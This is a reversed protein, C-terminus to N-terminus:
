FYPEYKFEEVKQHPLVLFKLLLNVIRPSAKGDGYPNIARSMSKYKRKNTLLISTEKVIKDKDTGVLIATGAKIEEMRETVERLVLIPKGLSPAEEQIGGSDTLIIYSHKMLNCFCLYDPPEILHIGPIGSLLKYVPKKVNLNPHVSYIIEIDNFKKELEILACCINKIGKDFSERRHATVLILKKKSEVIKKLNDPLTYKRKLVMFLADIATNGTVWIKHPSIGERILNDKAIETPAFCFDAICDTLKRNMEEPFPSYKNNSRLGAEIHGVPIKEYFAALAGIFTTTTDGQVLIIYPKVKKFVDKLEQLLRSSIYYLDQGEKMINLDLDPKISFVQIVQDLLKRHQASILIFPKIGSYKELEKIVPAMKIAEPRTGIIILITM